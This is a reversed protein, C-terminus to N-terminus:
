YELEGAAARAWDASAVLSMRLLQEAGHIDGAEIMNLARRNTTPGDGEAYLGLNLATELAAAASHAAGLALCDAALKRYRKQKDLKALTSVAQDFDDQHQTM